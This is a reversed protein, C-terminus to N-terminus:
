DITDDKKYVREIEEIVAMALAVEFQETFQTTSFRLKNWDEKNKPNAHEFHWKKVKNYADNYFGMDIVVILSLFKALVMIVNM